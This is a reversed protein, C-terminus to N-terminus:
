RCIRERLPLDRSSEGVAIRYCGPAVKWRDAPTDWYSFARRGLRFHVRKAAGPRLRVSEFGKLQAPPQVLGDPEPMGVYLQPVAFGRREGINRVVVSARVGGPAGPRGEIRLGRLWFRTYSLGYGFPYAVHLRHEDFWRYGVLVGEKYRVTEFTGPYKEFDGATPLDEEHVPFTAPLRGAPEAKGFLVRAIATGGNQGPYWAELIAPVRSRWPTLVPGGSQLVVVTRPNAGAVVEILEDRDLGDGQSCNLGLCRKDNGETMRDGVVVVAVDADRAVAAAQVPDSGDDYAVRDAGLRRTIADLPTTIKFESIASSGGGDKITDAEPGILALSDIRRARLPLLGTRNKLLVIGRQEIRAAARHHARQNIAATDDVYAARDFFGYAFLTRLIARIRADITTQTVQGTALAAEVLPPQYAVGPWIDLDLGANLSPATSKNAGYDTLVFGDFGWDDRLIETLLHHNQCAYDGNVRPYSCMVSAANGRKVAMEFHPLYLERLPREDVLANVTLRSGLIGVGIPLGSGDIGIGEQNNVAYHKVNAMVGENQVGRVWGVGIRGALYPDEGFYEFTRGNLPTRMLNMAPAYVVDNGKNRVEDGVVAAHRRAVRPDFSSALSMPAPMGTARGQRTGVPGDSLYMTPLGVRPIGNSTGTHQGEGGGVGGLDDGALLSIKEASTLAALLLNARKSPRLSTDCWPREAASGCRGAGSAPAAILAVLALAAACALLVRVRDM